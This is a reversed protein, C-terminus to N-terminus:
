CRAFGDNEILGLRALEAIMGQVSSRVVGPAAGFVAGLRGAIEDVTQEGDLLLWLASASPNMEHVQATREDFLVVRDVVFATDIAPHRAPRCPAASM